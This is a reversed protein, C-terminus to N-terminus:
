QLNLAAGRSASLEEFVEQVDDGFASPASTLMWGGAGGCMYARGHAEQVCGAAPGGVTHTWGAVRAYTRRFVQYCAITPLREPFLGLMHLLLSRM